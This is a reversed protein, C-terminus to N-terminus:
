HLGLYIKYLNVQQEAPSSTSDSWFNFSENIVISIGPVTDQDDILEIRRDTPGVRLRVNYM